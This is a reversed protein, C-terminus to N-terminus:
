CFPSECRAFPLVRALVFLCCSTETGVRWSFLSVGSRFLLIISFPSLFLAIHRTRGRKQRGSVGEVGCSLCLPTWRTRPPPQVVRVARASGAIFKKQRPQARGECGRSRSFMVMGTLASFALAAPFYPPPLQPPFTTALRVRLGLAELLFFQCRLYCRCLSLFAIAEFGM